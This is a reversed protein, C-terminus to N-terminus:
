AFAPEAKLKAQALAAAVEEFRRSILVRHECFAGSQELCLRGPMRRHQILASLQNLFRAIKRLFNRCGVWPM